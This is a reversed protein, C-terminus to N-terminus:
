IDSHIHVVTKHEHTCATVMGTDSYNFQCVYKGMESFNSSDDMLKLNEVILPFYRKIIDMVQPILAYTTMSLELEDSNPKRVVNVLDCAPNSCVSTASVLEKFCNSRGCFFRTQESYLKTIGNLRKELAGYICYPLVTVKLSKLLFRSTIYLVHTISM